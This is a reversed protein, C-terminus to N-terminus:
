WSFTFEGSDTKWRSPRSNSAWDIPMCQRPTAAKTFADQLAQRVEADLLGRKWSVFLPTGSEAVLRLWQRNKEWPVAGADALGVCDADAQFFVGHQCLRASLTNVGMKLTRDWERGSTDDGIRQVDFIGAALHNLANCGILVMDDGAAERMTRFLALMTEATTHSSDAWDRRDVVLRDDLEFGWKGCVDFTVYDCKVLQFGWRRFRAIDDRVRLRLDPLSPDFVEPHGKARLADPAGNWACLPRYWLGPKMGLGRVAKAFAPMEMGFTDAARDWPGRGGAPEVSCNNPQWGDDAVAFPRNEQNTCLAGIEGADALFNAATNRGYACYWDNYGYVPLGGNAPWRRESKPGYLALAQCFQRAALFPARSTARGCVVTCAHLARGGLDLPNSGSRVDLELMVTEGDVRWCALSNPQIAVGFGRVEVGDDALFYWPFARTRAEALPLWRTEGYTREWEDGLVLVNEMAMRWVVRLKYLLRRKASLELRVAGVNGQSPETKMGLRVGGGAFVTGDKAAALETEGADTVASVRMNSNYYVM